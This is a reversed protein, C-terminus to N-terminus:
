AAARPAPFLLGYDTSYMSALRRKMPLRPEMTGSEWRAITSQSVELEEAVRLQSMGLAERFTRLNRGWIRLIEADDMLRM